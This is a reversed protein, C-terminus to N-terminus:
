PTSSPAGIWGNLMAQRQQIDQEVVPALAQQQDAPLDGIAEGVLQDVRAQTMSTSPVANDPGPGDEHGGGSEPPSGSSDTSAGPADNRPTPGPADSRPEFAQPAPPAEAPPFGSSAITTPDPPPGSEQASEGDRPDRGPAPPAIAEVGQGTWVLPGPPDANATPADTSASAVDPLPSPRPARPFRPGAGAGSADGHQSAKTNWEGPAAVAGLSGARAGVTGAGRRPLVADPANAASTAASAVEVNAAGFKRPPQSVVWTAAIAVAVVVAAAILLRLPPM